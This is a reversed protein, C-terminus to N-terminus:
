SSRRARASALTILTSSGSTITSPPPREFRRRRYTRTGRRHPACTKESSTAVRRSGGCWPSETRPAAQSHPPGGGALPVAHPRAAQRQGRQRRGQGGAPPLAPAHTDVHRHDGLGEVGVAVVAESRQRGVGADELGQGQTVVLGRRPRPHRPGPRQRLGVRAQDLELGPQAEVVARQEVGVVHHAAVLLGPGVVQEHSALEGRHRLDLGHPGVRHPQPGARREGVEVVQQDAHRDRPGARHAQQPRAGVPRDLQLRAAQHLDLAKGTVVAGRRTAEASNRGNTGASTACSSAPSGPASITSGGRAATSHAREEALWTTAAWAEFM